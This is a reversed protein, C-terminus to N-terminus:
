PFLGLITWPAGSPAIHFGVTVSIAAKFPFHTLQLGPIETMGRGTGFCKSQM